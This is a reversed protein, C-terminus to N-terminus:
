QKVGGCALTLANGFYTSESGTIPVAKDVLGVSVLADRAAAAMAIHETAINGTRQGSRISPYYAHILEHVLTLTTQTRKSIQYYVARVGTFSRPTFLVIRRIM